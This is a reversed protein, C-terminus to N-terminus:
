RVNYYAISIENLGTESPIYEFINMTVQLIGRWTYSVNEAFNLKYLISRYNGYM